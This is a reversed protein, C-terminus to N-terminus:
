NLFKMFPKTLVFKFASLTIDSPVKEEYYYVYYFYTLLKIIVIFYIIIICQNILICM